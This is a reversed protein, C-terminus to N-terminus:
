NWPNKWPGKRAEALERAWPEHEIDFLTLAKKVVTPSLAFKRLFEEVEIGSLSFVKKLDERAEEDRHLEKLVLSRAVFAETRGPSLEIVRNLDDITEQLEDHNLHAIARYLFAQEHNNEFELVHSFDAVAESFDGNKLHAMGLATYGSKPELGQELAHSFAEISQPYKEELFFKQGKRYDNQATMDDGGAALATLLFNKM